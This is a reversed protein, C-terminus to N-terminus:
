GSRRGRAELRNFRTRAYKYVGPQGAAQASGDFTAYCPESGNKIDGDFASFLLHESNMDALVAPYRARGYDGYPMDGFLGIEYSRPGQGHSHSEQAAGTVMSGATAAFTTGVAACMAATGTLAVLKVMGRRHM